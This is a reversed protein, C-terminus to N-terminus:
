SLFRAQMWGVIRTILEPRVQLLETGRGNEKLINTEMLDNGASQLMVVTQASEADAASAYILLPRVGYDPLINRLTDGSLPSLMVLSDCLSQVACGILGLDAGEAAGVVGIRAPDVADSQSFARIIQSIDQSSLSSDVSFTIVTFGADRLQTPLVAWEDQSPAFLVIGPLREQVLGAGNDVPPNLYLNGDITRENRLTVRALSMNESSNGGGLVLPPLEAEAPLGAAQDSNQGRDPMGLPVATPPRIDTTPSPELTPASFERTPTLTLPVPTLSDCSALLLATIALIILEIKLRM